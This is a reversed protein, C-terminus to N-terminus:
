LKLMHPAKKVFGSTYITRERSQPLMGLHIYEDIGPHQVTMYDNAVIHAYVRKTITTPSDSSMIMLDPREDFLTKAQFGERAIKRHNLGVIDVFRWKSYYALSGANYHSVGLNEQETRLPKLYESIERYMEINQTYRDVFYHKKEKVPYLYNISILLCICAMLVNRIMPPTKSPGISSQLADALWLVFVSLYPVLFRNEYGMLPLTMAYISCSVFTAVFLGVDRRHIGWHAKGITIIIVIPLVYSGYKLVYLVGWLSHVERKVYFTNPLISGFYFYKWILFLVGAIFAIFTAFLMARVHHPSGRASLIIWILLVGGFLLGEPRTRGSIFITGVFIWFWRDSSSGGQIVRFACLYSYCVFVIVFFYMGTELGGVAHLAVGPISSLVLLVLFQVFVGIKENRMQKAILFFGGFTFCVGLIKSALELDIGCRSFGSLMVTWLLNTFGELPKEGCNWVLGYGNALNESYRFGIFADDVTFPWFVLVLLWFPLTAIIPSHQMMVNKKIFNM